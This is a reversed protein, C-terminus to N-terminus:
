ARIVKIEKFEVATELINQNEYNKEPKARSKKEFESQSQM